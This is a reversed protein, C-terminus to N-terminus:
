WTVVKPPFGRQQTLLYFDEDQTVIFYGNDKAWHWIISDSPNNGLGIKEVHMIGPFDEELIRILRWSLNADLLLNM